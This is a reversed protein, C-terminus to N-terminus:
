LRKPAEYDGSEDKLKMEFYQRQQDGTVPVQVQFSLRRLLMDKVEIHHELIQEKTLNGLKYEYAAVQEVNLRKDPQYNMTGDSFKYQLDVFHNTLEDWQQGLIWNLLGLQDCDSVVSARAKVYHKINNEFSTPYETWHTNPESHHVVHYDENWINNGGRLVTISNIYKNNPDSPERFIHWLYSILGLFSINELFPYLFYAWYFILGFKYIIYACISYYYVMGGLTEFLLLYEGKTFFLICPTIGSWYLFFRPLYYIYSMLETRNCDINTHVDAIDNHWRHHIKRHGASYTNPITGFIIGALGANLHDFILRRWLKPIIQKHRKSYDDPDETCFINRYLGNAYSHGEKHVLTAHHAFFQHKPGLRLLHYVLFTGFDVYGFAVWRKYAWFYFIAPQVISGFIMWPIYSSDRKDLLVHKGVYERFFYSQLERLGEFVKFSMSTPDELFAKCLLFGILDSFMVTTMTPVIILFLILVGVFFYTSDSVLNWPYPRGLKQVGKGGEVVTPTTSNCGTVGNKNRSHATADGGSGSSTSSCDAM